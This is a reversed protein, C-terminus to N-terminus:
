LIRVELLLPCRGTSFVFIPRLSCWGGCGCRCLMNKRINCVLHRRQSIMNIVFIGLVSDKNSFSIGDLYLALPIATLPLSKEVVPHSAYAPPFDSVASPLSALLSPDASFEEEILLHAPLCALPRVARAADARQYIPVDVSYMRSDDMKVGAHRDFHESYHGTGPDGPAKALKSVGQAGSMAAWYALTCADTASSKSRLKLGVIFDFLCLGAEDLSILGDDGDLAM